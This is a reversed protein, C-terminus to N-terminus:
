RERRVGTSCYRCSHLWGDQIEIRALRLEEEVEAATWTPKRALRRTMAKELRLMGGLVLKFDHENTM